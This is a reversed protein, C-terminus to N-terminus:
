CRKLMLLTRGKPNDGSYREPGVMEAVCYGESLMKKVLAYNTSLMIYWGAKEAERTYQTYSDLLTLSAPDPHDKGDSATLDRVVVMRHRGAGYYDIFLERGVYGRRNINVEMVPHDITDATTWVCSLGYKGALREGYELMANRHELEDIGSATAIGHIFLGGDMDFVMATEIKTEGQGDKAFALLGTRSITFLTHEEEGDKGHYAKEMSSALNADAESDATYFTLGLAENKVENAAVEDPVYPIGRKFALRRDDDGGIAWISYGLENLAKKPDFGSDFPISFADLEWSPAQIEPMEKPASDKGCEFMLYDRDGIYAPFFHRMAFGQKMYPLYSRADGTELMVKFVRDPCSETAQRLIAEAVGYGEWGRAICISLSNVRGLRDPLFEGVGVLNGIQNSVGILMGCTAVMSISLIDNAAMGFVDKILNLAQQFMYPKEMKWAHLELRNSSLRISDPPVSLKSAAHTLVDHSSGAERKFNNLMDLTFVTKLLSEFMEPAMHPTVEKKLTTRMQEFIRKYSPDGILIAFLRSPDTETEAGLSDLELSFFGYAKKPEIKKKVILSISSDLSAYARFDGIDKLNPVPGSAM